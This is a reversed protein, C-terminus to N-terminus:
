PLLILKAELRIINAHALDSSAENIREILIQQLDIGMILLVFFVIQKIITYIIYFIIIMFIKKKRPSWKQTFPLKKDLLNDIKKYINSRFIILSILLIGMIQIYILPLGLLYFSSLTLIALVIRIILQKQM